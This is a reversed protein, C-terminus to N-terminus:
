PKIINHNRFAFLRKGTKNEIWQLVRNKFKMKKVTPDLQVNWNKEAIRKEMVAPHTEKFINISDIKSFDFFDPANLFNRFAGTDEHWFRAVNKNKKMMQEPSKVWGYHYVWAEIPVVNIKKGDRRFGQADRFSRIAPDNKIMRTECNYWKRSDGIYSYTAYFHLYRFLLGDVKKNDKYQAAAKRIADHYKEHVVEDGQIYFIWDTDKSVQDMVKNTEVALVEGNKRLLMNWTSHLIKIKPSDINKILWETEDDSDGVSVLMEDVVPLISRIAEVIPYDNQVANRIITIGTIKM